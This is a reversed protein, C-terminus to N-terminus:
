RLGHMPDLSHRLPDQSEYINRDFDLPDVLNDLWSTAINGLPYDKHPRWDPKPTEKPTGVQRDHFDAGPKSLKDRHATRCYGKPTWCGADLVRQLYKAPLQDTVYQINHDFDEFRDMPLRFNVLRDFMWSPKWLYWTILDYMQITFGLDWDYGDHLELSPANLNVHNVFGLPMEDLIASEFKRADKGMVEKFDWGPVRFQGFIRVRLENEHRTIILFFPDTGGNIGVPLPEVYNYVDRKSLRNTRTPSPTTNPTITLDGLTKNAVGPRVDLSPDHRSNWLTSSSPAEKPALSPLVLGPAGSVTHLWFLALLRIM